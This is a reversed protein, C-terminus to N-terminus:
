KAFDRSVAHAAAGVRVRGRCALGRANGAPLDDASAVENQPHRPESEHASKRVFAARFWANGEVSRKLVLCGVDLSVQARVGVRLTSQINFTPHKGWKPNGNGFSVIGAPQSHIMEGKGLGRSDDLEDAM